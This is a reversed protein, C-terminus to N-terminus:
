QYKKRMAKRRLATTRAGRGMPDETPTSLHLVSEGGSLATIIKERSDDDLIGDEAYVILDEHGEAEADQVLDADSRQELDMSEFAAAIEEKVIRRLASKSIIM